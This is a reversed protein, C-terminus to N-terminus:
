FIAEGTLVPGPGNGQLFKTAAGRSPGTENGTLLSPATCDRTLAIKGKKSEEVIPCTKDRGM